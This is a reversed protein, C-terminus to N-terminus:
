VFAIKMSTTGMIKLNTKLFNYCHLGQSDHPNFPRAKNLIHLKFPRSVPSDWDLCNRAYSYLTNHIYTSVHNTSADHVNFVQDQM